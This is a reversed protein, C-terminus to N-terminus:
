SETRNFGIPRKRPEPLPPPNRLKRIEELVYVIGREHTDLRKTLKDELEKLRSTLDVNSDIVQRMRVFSRVVFISMQMARATSLINAAMIAGHETFVYPRYRINRKSATANQSRIASSRLSGSELRTNIEDVDGRKLQFCFDRPFRMRNRKVQENLRKTPVGYIFALDSDLIVRVDRVKLILSDVRTAISQNRRRQNM